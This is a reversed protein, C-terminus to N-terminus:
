ICLCLDALCMTCPQAFCRPYRLSPFRSGPRRNPALSPVPTLLAEERVGDVEARDDLARLGAGRGVAVREVVGSVEVGHVVVAVTGALRGVEEGRQRELRRGAAGANLDAGVVVGVLGAALGEVVGLEVLALGAVVGGVQGGLARDVVAQQEVQRRGGPVPLVATPGAVPAHGLEGRQGDAARAAAGERDAGAGVLGQHAEVEVVGAGGAAAGADGGALRALGAAEAAEGGTVEAGTRDLGVAGHPTKAARRRPYRGSGYRDRAAHQVLNQLDGDPGAM